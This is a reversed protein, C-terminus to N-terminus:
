VQRGFDFGFQDGTAPPPAFQSTDLAFRQGELGHRRRALAIRKEILAAYHGTGTMRTGWTADYDAGGRMQRILSMVHAARDPYHTELWERFLQKISHPLRLLVHGVRRAGADAVAAVLREIEHDTIMPIVPAILAGTPVGAEALARITALRRGPAAARPELTRKIDSDLSTVSVFVSALGRGAMDGLLDLDRTVHAGKTIVSIPQNFQHAVELIERTIALKRDDPQYPDTNAGLTIAECRYRPHRLEAEFLAAAEPKYYLETEFDLGASHDLYEHTPRAFCYICGHACGKYPNISAAFPVDPSENRSIVRRTPDRHLRTPPATDDDALTDLTDWGDDFDEGHAAAFRSAANTLAGRAAHNTPRHAM